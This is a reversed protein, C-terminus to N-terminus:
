CNLKVLAGTVEANANLNVRAGGSSTMTADGTLNVASGGDSHMNADATLYVTGGGSGHMNADATLYVQAGDHAHMDANATLYVQAGGASKLDANGTLYLQGGGSATMRGNADLYVEAGGGAVLKIHGPYMEIKSGGCEFIISDPATMKINQSVEVIYDGTVNLKAGHFDGRGAGDVTTIQNGHVHITENGGVGLSRSGGVSVSQSGDVRMTHNHLVKEDLDRQAHMHILEHGASDEFYLENYGNGGPSSNTRIISRTPNAELQDVPPPPHNDLNYVCGTILPRDPNGDLFTVVVEMGVRPNFVVGWGAGAWSQAVRIWCSSYKSQQARSRLEPREWHFRVLVRGYFDVCVEANPAGPMAMVQATQAGHIRPRRVTRAPRYVTGEPVLTFKNGYREEDVPPHPDRDGEAVRGWHEATVITFPGKEAGDEDSVTVRRGPMFGTVVGRGSWTEAPVTREALRQSARTALDNNAYYHDANYDYFTAEAPYDYLSREGPSAPSSQTTATERGPSAEDARFPHTFDWDRLTVGTPALAFRTELVRVSETDLTSGGEGMVPVAGSAITPVAEAFADVASDDALVLQEGGAEHRFYYTVGEDALLRQIFDLDTEQYQVCFERVHHSEMRVASADLGSDGQYVGAAALVERVVDIAHLDQFVRCDRRQSLLWLSPVLLARVHRRRVVTGLDEAARIVGAVRRTLSGRTITFTAPRGLLGRLDSREDEWLDIVAEYVESLGEHLRFSRVKWGTSPGVAGQFEYDAEPLLDSM